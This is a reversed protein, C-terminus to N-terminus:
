EITTDKLDTHEMLGSIINEELFPKFIKIFGIYEEKNDLDTKKFDDWYYEDDFASNLVSVLYEDPEPRIEASSYFENQYVEGSHEDSAEFAEFGYYSIDTMKTKLSELAHKMAESVGRNYSGWADTYVPPAYSILWGADTKEAKMEFFERIDAANFSWWFEGESYGTNASDREENDSALGTLYRREDDCLYVGGINPEEYLISTMENRAFATFECELISIAEDRHEEPVYIYVHNFCRSPSFRIIDEPLRLAPSGKKHKSIVGIQEVPNQKKAYEYGRKAIREEYSCLIGEQRLYLAGTLNHKTKTYKDFFRMDLDPNKSVVDRFSTPLQEERREKLTEIISIFTKDSLENNSLLGQERIVEGVKRDYLRESLYSLKKVPLDANAQILETFTAPPEKGVYRDKLAQITENWAQQWKEQKNTGQKEEKKNKQKEALVGVQRLYKGLSMGFLSSARNELTKIQSQLDPYAEKLQLVSTFVPSTNRRKLEDILEEVDNMPRGKNSM